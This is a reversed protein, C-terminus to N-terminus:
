KTRITLDKRAHELYFHAMDPSEQDLVVGGERVPVPSHPPLAEGYIIMLESRRDTTLLHFMRVRVAQRPLTLHHSALLRVMAAGDSQPDQTQMTAYDPWTKVDYVFGLDDIKTQLSSSFDYTRSNTPLFHEFQVLYFKEVNTESAVVFIHQEALANGYLNVSQGGVYRFDRSFNLDAKPLENSVITQGRVARLEMDGSQGPLRNVWVLFLAFLACKLKACRRRHLGAQVSEPHRAFQASIAQIPQM